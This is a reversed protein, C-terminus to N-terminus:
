IDRTSAAFPVGAATLREVLSTKAFAYGPSLVGGGLPMRSKEKLIVLASQVIMECTAGYGVNKGSVKAIVERDPKSDHMAAKERWGKGILTMEFNTNDAMEKSPGDRSVAGFSFFKPFTELLTRGFKFKALTGFMMGALMIMVIGFFSGVTFYSQIQAPREKDNDYMARQTRMMISRDSGPFPMCYANMEESWFVNGRFKLRPSLSPLRQPYLQKRIDKLQYANAFGHIASQFTAFNIVPGPLDPTAVTLFTEISNVDGEMADTVVMQGMDAPISDFGCAGVIYIGKSRAENNFKLQMKELYEPEGSIDVHNTGAKVCASVVQEGHFRYPGVCNLVVKAKSAMEFVSQDSNTDCIIIPTKTLDSGIAKTAAALVAQLKKENRGSIAWTTSTDNERKLAKALFEVVFQGTFGSAGFIVLDYSM